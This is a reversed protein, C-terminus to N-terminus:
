SQVGTEVTSQRIDLVVQERHARRAPETWSSSETRKRSLHILRWLSAHHHCSRATWPIVVWVHRGFVGWITWEHTSRFYRKVEGPSYLLSSGHYVCRSTEVAPEDEVATPAVTVQTDTPMNHRDKSIDEFPSNVDLFKGVLQVFPKTSISWVRRDDLGDFPGHLMALRKSGTDDHIQRGTRHRSVGVVTSATITGHIPPSRASASEVSPPDNICMPNVPYEYTADPTRPVGSITTPNSSLDAGGSRRIEDHLNRPLLRVLGSM